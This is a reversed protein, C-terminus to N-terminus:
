VGRLEEICTGCPGDHWEVLRGFGSPVPLRVGVMDGVLVEKMMPSVSEVRRCM